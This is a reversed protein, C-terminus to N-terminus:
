LPDKILYRNLYEKDNPYLDCHKEMQFYIGASLTAYPDKDGWFSLSALLPILGTKGKSHRYDANTIGLQSHLFPSFRFTSKSEFNYVRGGHAARNRFDLYVFLSDMFLDRMGDLQQIATLPIDYAISIIRCKQPYKQLKVFNVLNGFSADKLLIWPPINNYTERYYKIPDIDDKQIKEFKAMIDDLPYRRGRKKGLKFNSRRLYFNQDATFAEGLTHAVATRLNDEVQLMSEMLSARIGRDMKYLSLIQEFTTGPKYKEQGDIHEVYPDKYGNIINYYGYRRLANKATEESIFALGRSQLIEIQRDFTTFDKDNM